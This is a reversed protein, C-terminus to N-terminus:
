SGGAFEAADLLAYLDIRHRVRHAGAGACWRSSPTGRGAGFGRACGDIIGAGAEAAAVSNAVAMGLNNHCPLNVPVGLPGVAEVM